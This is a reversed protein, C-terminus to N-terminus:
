VLYVFTYDQNLYQNFFGYNQYVGATLYQLMLVGTVTLVVKMNVGTVPGATFQFIRDLQVNEIDNM